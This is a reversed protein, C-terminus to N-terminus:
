GQRGYTVELGPSDFPHRAGDRATRRHMDACIDTPTVSGGCGLFIGGGVL